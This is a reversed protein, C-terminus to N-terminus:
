CSNSGNGIKEKIKAAGREKNAKKKLNLVINKDMLEHKQQLTMYSGGDLHGTFFFGSHDDLLFCGFRSHGEKLGLRQVTRKIVPSLKDEVFGGRVVMKYQPDFIFDRYHSTECIHVNDYWFLTPTLSLQCKDGSIQSAKLWEINDICQQSGQYTEALNLLNKRLKQGKTGYDVNKTSDSNPGYKQADLLLEPPRLICDLMEDAYLGGYQGIFQDRMFLNSRMSMGVYKINSNYYMARITENIPTPRMFTRDHQIVIVYPTDVCNRLAHRLAFGYGQRVELEHVTTHCFPSDVKAEDHKNCILKLNQKFARYNQNQLVTVIGNRMSQKDNTHKKTTCEDRQRCGDCIIVKRCKYAFEDGCKKFTEFVKELLETSPNSKVPSTTVIITLLDELKPISTSRRRLAEKQCQLSPIYGFNRNSPIASKKMDTSLGYFKILVIKNAIDQSEDQTMKINGDLNKVFKVIRCRWEFLFDGRKVVLSNKPIVWCAQHKESPPYLEFCNVERRRPRNVYEILPVTIALSAVYNNSRSSGPCTAATEFATAQSKAINLHQSIQNKPFEEIVVQQIPNEGSTDAVERIRKVLSKITLPINDLIPDNNEDKEETMLSLRLVRRRYDFGEWGFDHGRNAYVDQLIAQAERDTVYEPFIELDERPLAVAPNNVSICFGDDNNKNSRWPIEFFVSDTTTSKGNENLQYPEKM